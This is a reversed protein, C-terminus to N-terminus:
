PLRLLETELTPLIKIDLWGGRGLRLVRGGGPAGLARCGRPIGSGGSFAKNPQAGSVPTHFKNAIKLGQENRSVLERENKRGRLLLPWTLFIVETEGAFVPAEKAPFTKPALSTLSALLLGCQKPNKIPQSQVRPPLPFSDARAGKSFKAKHPRGVEILHKLWNSPYSPTM